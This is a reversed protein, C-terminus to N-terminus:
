RVLRPPGGWFAPGHYTSHVSGYPAERGKGDERSKREAEESGEGDDAEFYRCVMRDSVKRNFVACALSGSPGYSFICSECKETSTGATPQADHIFFDRSTSPAPKWRAIESLMQNYDDIFM